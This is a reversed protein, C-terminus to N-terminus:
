SNTSVYLIPSSYSQKCCGTIDGLASLHPLGSVEISLQDKNKNIFLRIAKQLINNRETSTEEQPVKTPTSLAKVLSRVFLGKDEQSRFLFSTNAIAERSMLRFVWDM